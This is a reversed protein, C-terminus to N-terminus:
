QVDGSCHPTTEVREGPSGTEPGLHMGSTAGCSCCRHSGLHRQMAGAIRGALVSARAPLATVDSAYAISGEAAGPKLRGPFARTGQAAAASPNGSSNGAGDVHRAGSM